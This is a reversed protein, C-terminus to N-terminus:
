NFTVDVFTWTPTTQSISFDGLTIDQQGLISVQNYNTLVM